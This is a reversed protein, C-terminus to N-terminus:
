VKSNLGDTTLLPNTDDHNVATFVYHLASHNGCPTKWELMESVLEKDNALNKM